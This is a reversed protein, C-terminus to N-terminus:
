LIPEQRQGGARDDTEENVSVGIHAEVHNVHVDAVATLGSLADFMDCDLISATEWTRAKSIASLSDTLVVVKPRRTGVTHLRAVADRM